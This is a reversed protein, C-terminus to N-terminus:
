KILESVKSRAAYEIMCYLKAPFKMDEVKLVEDGYGCNAYDIYSHDVYTRVKDGKCRQFKNLDPNGKQVKGTLNSNSAAVEQQKKGDPAYEDLTQARTDDYKHLSPAANANNAGQQPPAPANTHGKHIIIHPLLSANENADM